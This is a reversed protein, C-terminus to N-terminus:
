QWIVVGKYKEELEALRKKQSSSLKVGQSVMGTLEIYRATDKQEKREKIEKDHKEKRLTKIEERQKKILKGQKKADGMKWEVWQNNRFLVVKIYLDKNYFLNDFVTKITLFREDIFFESGKVDEVVNEMKEVDYYIFDAEYTLAPIIEQNYNMFEDLIKIRFHHALNKIKGQKQLALLYEYRNCETRSDFKQIDNPNIFNDLCYKEAKARGDRKDKSNEFRVGNVWYVVKGKNIGRVQANM